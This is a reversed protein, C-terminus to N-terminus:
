IKHCRIELVVRHTFKLIDRFNLVFDVAILTNVNIIVVAIVYLALSYRLIDFPISRNNKHNM